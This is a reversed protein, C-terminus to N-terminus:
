TSPRTAPLPRSAACARSTAAAPGDRDGRRHPGDCPLHAARLPGSGHDPRDRRRSRAFLASGGKGGPLPRGPRAGRQRPTPGRRDLEDPRRSGHHGARAARALRARRARRHRGAGLAHEHGAPGRRQLHRRGLPRAGRRHDRRHARRHRQRRRDPRVAAARDVRRQAQREYPDEDPALFRLPAGLAHPQRRLHQRRRPRGPRAGQRRDHKGLDRVGGRRPAAAISRAMEDRGM